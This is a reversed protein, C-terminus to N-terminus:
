PFACWSLEEIPPAIETLIHARVTQEITELNEEPTNRYLIEAIKNLSEQLQQEEEPTM